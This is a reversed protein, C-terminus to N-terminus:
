SGREAAAPPGYAWVWDNKESEGTLAPTGNDDIFDWGISYIRYRGDDTKSYRLLESDLDLRPVPLADPYDGQDIRHLEIECAALAFQTLMHAKASSRPIKELGGLFIEVIASDRIEGEEPFRAQALRSWNKEKAPIIFNELLWISGFAKNRDLWGWPLLRLALKVVLGDDEADNSMGALVDSGKMEDLAWELFVVECEAVTAFSGLLDLRELESKLSLLQQRDWVNQALGEWIATVARNQILISSLHATLSPEKSIAEALRIKIRISNLAISGDGAEIAARSWLILTKSLDIAVTTHTLNAAAFNEMNKTLDWPFPSVSFPRKSAQALEAFEAGFRNELAALIAEPGEGDVFEDWPTLDTRRRSLVDGGHGNFHERPDVSEPILTIASLREQKEMEQDLIVGRLLPTDWFNDEAAVPDPALQTLDFTIGENLLQEKATHWAQTGQANEALWAVAAIKAITLLM